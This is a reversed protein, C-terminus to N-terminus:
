AWENPGRRALINDLEVILECAKRVEALLHITARDSRSRLSMSFMLAGILVFTSPWFLLAPPFGFLRELTYQWYGVPDLSPPFAGVIAAVIGLLAVPIAIMSLVLLPRIWSHDPRRALIAEAENIRRRLEHRVEWALEELDRGELRSILQGFAREV